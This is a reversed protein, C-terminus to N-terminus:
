FNTKTGKIEYEEIFIQGSSRGNYENLNTKGIIDVISITYANPALEEFAGEPARFKICPVDKAMLKLTNSKMLIKSQQDIRINTFALVPEEVGKGWFRKLSALELVLDADVEDNDMIFDVEYEKYSNGYDLNDNCYKIFKEFNEETFKVGFAQAHGEAYEALGSENIFARFDSMVNSEYGRGSGMVFGDQKSIVLAPRRFKSQMQNAILGNLDKVVTGGTDLVIISNEKLYEDNVHKGFAIAGKDEQTKQRNKVNSAVRAAEVSFREMEGKAGRKQSPIMLSAKDELLAEFLGIREELSGVRVTSNIFPAIYFSIGIPTVSSGLSFNQKIIFEALFTNQGKVNGDNMIELGKDILRRTEFSRLDMMDAVLGLAVLDLYQDATTAGTGKDASEIARCFQWVVGVGSLAKNKYNPSLQNNVVIADESELDCDHHDLIICDINLDKLTKHKEYENSGADPVIILDYKNTLIDNTMELGHKKEEHVQYEINADPFNSKTFNYLHAASTFGDVDSDVQILIKGKNRLHKIFIDRAAKINELDEWSQIDDDTTNMYHEIQELPIGRDVFVQQTPTLKFDREYKLKIEM